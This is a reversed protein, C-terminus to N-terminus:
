IYCCVSSSTPFRQYSALFTVERVIKNVARDLGSCWKHWAHGVRLGHGVHSESWSETCGVGCVRRREAGMEGGLYLLLAEERHLPGM